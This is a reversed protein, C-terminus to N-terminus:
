LLVNQYAYLSFPFMKPIQQSRNGASHIKRFGSSDIDFSSIGIEIIMWFAARGCKRVAISANGKASSSAKFVRAKPFVLDFCAYISQVRKFERM